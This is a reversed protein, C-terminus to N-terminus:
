VRLGGLENLLTTLNGPAITQNEEIEEQPLAEVRIPQDAVVKGSRTALVVVVEEELRAEQLQVTVSSEEAARVTVPVKAFAFGPHRVELTHEGEALSLRAEGRTDTSAVVGEAQVEASSVPAVGFRVRVIVAGDPGAAAVAAFALFPALLRRARAASM